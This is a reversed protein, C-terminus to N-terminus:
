DLDDRDRGRVVVRNYDALVDVVRVVVQYVCDTSIIIALKTLPMEAM